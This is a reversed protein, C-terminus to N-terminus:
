CTYQAAKSEPKQISKKQLFRSPDAKFAHVCHQSCFHYTTGEYDVQGAASAPDVTMGCVPDIAMDFRHSFSRSGRLFCTRPRIPGTPPTSRAPCRISPSSGESGPRSTAASRFTM